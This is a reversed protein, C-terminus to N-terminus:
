IEKLIDKIRQAARTFVEYGSSTEVVRFTEFGLISGLRGLWAQTKPKDTIVCGLDGGARHRLVRWLLYPRFAERGVAAIRMLDYKSILDLIEQEVIGKIIVNVPIGNNCLFISLERTGRWGSEVTCIVSKRM